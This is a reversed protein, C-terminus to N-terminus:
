KMDPGTDQSMESAVGDAADAVGEIANMAAGAALTAGGTAAAAGGAAASSGAAAGEGATAASGLDPGTSGADAPTTGAADPNEISSPGLDPVEQAGPGGDSPADPTNGSPLAGQGGGSPLEGQGGTNGPSPDSESATGTPGTASMFNAHDDGGGSDGGFMGNAFAAGGAGAAVGAALVAGAGLGGGVQVGVFSFFKMMAPLAIVALTIVMIGTILTTISQETGILKFGITYIMAAIPKFLVLAICAGAIRPFWQRGWSTLQGAAAILILSYLVVIGAQRIFGMVWQIFSLAATVLGLFLVGAPNQITATGLMLKVRQGFENAGDEVMQQAFDDGAHLAGSLVVMALSSILIYKVGGMLIEAAPQTRRSVMMAIASTLIGAMMIFGVVKQVPTKGALVNAYSIDISDTKIWWVMSEVLIDGAFQGTWEAAKGFTSDAAEDLVRGPAGAIDIETRTADDGFADRVTFGTNDSPYVYGKDPNDACGPFDTHDKCWIVGETDRWSQQEATLAELNTPPVSEAAPQASSPYAGLFLITVAAFMLVLLRKVLLRPPTHGEHMVSEKLLHHLRCDVDLESPGSTRQDAPIAM